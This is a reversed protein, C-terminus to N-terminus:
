VTPCRGLLRRSRRHRRAGEPEFLIVGVVSRLRRKGPEVTLLRREKGLQLAGLRGGALRAANLHALVQPQHNPNITPTRKMGGACVDGRGDARKRESTAGGVKESAGWM